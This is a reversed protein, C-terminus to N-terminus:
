EENNEEGGRVSGQPNRIGGLRGNAGDADGFRPVRPLMKKYRIYSGHVGAGERYLFRGCLWM